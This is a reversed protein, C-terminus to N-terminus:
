SIPPNWKKLYYNTYEHITNEIKSLHQSKVEKLDNHNPCIANWKNIEFIETSVEIFDKEEQALTKINRIRKKTIKERIGTTLIRLSSGHLPTNLIDTKALITNKIDTFYIHIAYSNYFVDRASYYYKKYLKHEGILFYCYSILMTAIFIKESLSAYDRFLVINRNKAKNLSEEYLKHSEKIPQIISRVIAKQDISDLTDELM